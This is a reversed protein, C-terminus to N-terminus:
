TRNNPDSSRRSMWVASSISAVVLLLGIIALVEVTGDGGDPSFNFLHELFNVTAGHSM